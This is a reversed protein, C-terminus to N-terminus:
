QLILWSTLNVLKSTMNIELNTVMTTVYVMQFVIFLCIACWITVCHFISPFIIGFSFGRHFNRFGLFFDVLLISFSVILQFLGMNRIAVKMLLKSMDGCTAQVQNSEKIKFEKVHVIWDAVELVLKFIRRFLNVIYAKHSWVQYASNCCCVANSQERNAELSM